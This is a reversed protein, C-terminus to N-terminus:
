KVLGSVGYATEFDEKELYNFPEMMSAYRLFLYVAAAVMLFLVALGVASALNETIGGFGIDAAGALLILTVPCLICLLVGLSIRKSGDKTVAMFANAEEMSVRRLVRDNESEVAPLRQPELEDKLLYDTTVSFLESM